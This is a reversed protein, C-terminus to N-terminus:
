PLDLVPDSHGTGANNVLVGLGGLEEALADIVGGAEPSSLDQQMVFCRQGRERIGAATDEAGDADTNFTVGVDFGETALLEATAKGIGSDAGPVIALRLPPPIGEPGTTM